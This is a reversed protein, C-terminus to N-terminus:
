PVGGWWPMKFFFARKKLIDMYLLANRPNAHTRPCNQADFYPKFYPFLSIVPLVGKGCRPRSGVRFM